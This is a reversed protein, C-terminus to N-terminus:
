VCLALNLIPTFYHEPYENLLEGTSINSSPSRLQIDMMYKRIEAFLSSQEDILGEVVLPITHPDMSSQKALALLYYVVDEPTQYTFSQIIQLKNDKIVMTMFHDPYFNVYIADKREAVSRLWASYVHMQKSQPFQDKLFGSIERPVRYINHMQWNLVPEEFVQGRSVAGYVLNTITQQMGDKLLEDPILNSEPYAYVFVSEVPKGQLWEDSALIEAIVEAAPKEPHSEITYSRFALLKSESRSFFIYTFMHEGVEMLLLHQLLDQPRTDPQIIDFSPKMMYRRLSVGIKGLQIVELLPYFLQNRTTHVLFLAQKQVLGKVKCGKIDPM